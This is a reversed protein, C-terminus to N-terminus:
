LFYVQMIGIRRHQQPIQKDEKNADGEVNWNTHAIIISADNVIANFRPAIQSKQADIVM